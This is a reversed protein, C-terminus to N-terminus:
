IDFYVGTKERSCERMGTGPSHADDKISELVYLVVKCIVFKKIVLKSKIDSANLGTTACRCIVKIASYLSDPVVCTLFAVTIRYNM